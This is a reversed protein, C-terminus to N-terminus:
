THHQITRTHLRRSARRAVGASSSPCRNRVREEALGLREADADVLSIRCRPYAARVAAAARGSGCCLDCVSKAQQAQERYYKPRREVRASSHQTHQEELGDLTRGLTNHNTGVTSSSRQLSDVRCRVGLPPLAYVLQQLM